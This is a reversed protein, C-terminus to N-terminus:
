QVSAWFVLVEIMRWVCVAEGGINTGSNHSELGVGYPDSGIGRCNNRLSHAESFVSGHWRAETHIRPNM